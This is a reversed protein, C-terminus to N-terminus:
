CSFLVKFVAASSLMLRKQDSFTGLGRGHERSSLNGPVCSFYLINGMVSGSSNGNIKLTVNKNIVKLMQLTYKFCHCKDKSANNKVLHCRIHNGLLPFSIPRGSDQNVVIQPLLSVRPSSLILSWNGPYSVHCLISEQTHFLTYKRYNKEGQRGM